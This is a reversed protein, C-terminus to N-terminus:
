VLPTTFTGRPSSGVANVCALIYQLVYVTAWLWTLLVFPACFRPPKM